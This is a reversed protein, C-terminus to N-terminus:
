EDVLKKEAAKEPDLNKQENEQKVEMEADKLMNNIEEENEENLYDNFDEENDDELGTLKKIKKDAEKRTKKIEKAQDDIEKKTKKDM